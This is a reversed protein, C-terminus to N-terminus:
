EVTTTAQPKLDVNNSWNGGLDQAWVTFEYKSGPNGSYEASSDATTMWQQWEGEDVRVWVLYSQIGSDDQGGWSVTFSAPSVMPLEFVSAVPPRTDKDPSVTPQVLISGPTPVVNTDTPLSLLGALTLSRDISLTVVEEGPREILFFPEGGIAADAGVPIKVPNDPKAPPLTIMYHGNEDPTILEDDDMTILQANEGEAPLTVMIEEFTRNWMVYVKEATNEREFVTILADPNLNINNKDLINVYSGRKFPADFVQALLSYAFAAQRPTGPQPHQSFCISSAYNRFMGHADGYCASGATCLEGDHPPFNTGAAQDGCDDYLQHFIIVDAGEVWGYVASQIYFWAQQELTARSLKQENTEAWTPGPYDDWVPVGTENVWIPKEIEYEILTQRAMIVLWATRTPDAYNHVAVMDMYWNFQERYPDNIYINLVLALWNNQTPYLLGGFMVQANPDAYHASIYAVKLLRAYDRYTANWFTPLDPENWVEWVTIGKGAPLTAQRALIGGPKYRQVAEYVFVAWPNAPNLTKGEGPLDSGDSFIPEYMGQIRNEEARFGPRGLLIADITLGHRLDDVVQRDYNSWDFVGPATEIRDWYLPWRNWSAGLSLARKYREEPTGGEAASIHAIGLRPNRIYNDRNTLTGPPTTPIPQQAQLTTAIFILALLFIFRRM